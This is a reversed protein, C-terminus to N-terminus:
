FGNERASKKWNNKTFQETELSLSRSRYNGCTRCILWNIERSKLM